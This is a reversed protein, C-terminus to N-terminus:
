SLHTDPPAAASPSVLPAQSASPGPCCGREEMGPGTAGTIPAISVLSTHPSPPYPGPLETEARPYREGWRGSEPCQGSSPLLLDRPELTPFPIALSSAPFSSHPQGLHQVQVWALTPSCPTGETVLVM